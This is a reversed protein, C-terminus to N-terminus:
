QSVIRVKKPSLHDLSLPPNFKSSRSPLAQLRIGASVIFTAAQAIEVGCTDAIIELTLAQTGIEIGKNVFILLPLNNDDLSPRLKILTERISNRM